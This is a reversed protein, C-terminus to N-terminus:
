RLSRATEHLVPEAAKGSWYREVARKLERRPGIRPFGLNSAIAM